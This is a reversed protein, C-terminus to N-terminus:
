DKYIINTIVVQIMVSEPQKKNFLLKIIYLILKLMTNIIDGGVSFDWKLHPTSTRIVFVRGWQQFINYVLYESFDFM